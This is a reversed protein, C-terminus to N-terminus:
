NIILSFNLLVLALDTNMYFQVDIKRFLAQLYSSKFLDSMNSEDRPIKKVQKHAFKLIDVEQHQHNVSINLAHSFLQNSNNLLSHDNKWSNQSM